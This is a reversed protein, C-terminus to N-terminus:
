EQICTYFLQRNAELVKPDDLREAIKTQIQIRDKDKKNKWVGSELVDVFEKMNDLPLDWGLGDATLNKWPTKNSILVPTGVALSETIVHGYNEGQTPFLFLDYLSFVAGVDTPVVLGRYNVHINNPLKRILKLCEAWYKMDEQPGYIDFNIDIKVKQLVRIAYDLNKMPSIRSLFVVQFISNDRYTDIGVTPLKKEPINKAIVVSKEDVKLRKVIDDKEFESSAQWIIGRHLGLMKALFIFLKKKFSKIELAGASFEGRPALVVPLKKFLFFKRALLLKISFKFSFFSNLYLIDCSSQNIHHLFDVVRFRSPSAYYVKSADLQVWENLEVDYAGRDGLDRDRTVIWFEFEDTLNEVLNNISKIPGGGKFGPLYYPSYVLVRLM